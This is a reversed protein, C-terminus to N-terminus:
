DSRLAESPAVNAARRSPLLCAPLAAGVLVIATASFVMLSLPSVGFLMGSIARGVMWAGVVGIPLGICLLRIGLGLFQSLIQGPRAGLAMRVGIERTRQSVSFALIAYIGVAALLLSVAGFVSGMIVPIRRASLSDDIRSAMPRTDFLEIGPDIGLVVAKIAAAAAGPEQLTRVTVVFQTLEGAPFYAAGHAQQDSLDKQKISGVVGVITYRIPKTETADHPQSLQRGVASGSPWHRHAFEEDVDCVLLKSRVDEVNLFRGERLPIGLTAFYDGIVWNSFLGEKIFEDQAATPGAISWAEVNTRWTFPVGQSITASVTGPMARLGAALRGIVAVRKKPDKYGSWDPLAVVGTMLHEQTFGPKVDLIRIFSLGLLGTASLLVFALAIQAVILGHRLRHVSRTTTGGRSEVSLSSALNGRATLWVVPSALLLGVGASMGLAAWSVAPVLRLELAIDEPLQGAVFRSWTSLVAFGIALGLIGGALSLVLAEVLIGRILQHRGAGLVQRLSYEKARSTARVMFLNALNVVGILLLFLVGAQLLLLVSRSGKVHDAQLSTVDCFYGASLVQGAMPDVKIGAKDVAELESQAERLTVGHRLRAIMELGDYHRAYPNDDAPAITIPTWLKSGYSLYGFGAPMVGIITYPVDQIQLTQGIASAEGKFHQRWFGDSLVVVKDKGPTGEEDAFTRGLVASAELVRFFSPTVESGSVREATGGTTLICDNYRICGAEQFAAVGRKRELYHPVSVGIGIIGAKPYNNHIVVLRDSEYFPLPRILAQNVMSFIVVNAALCLAVIFLVTLTFGRSRRLSRLTFRLDGALQDVWALKREDRYSEKVQDVGGFQRLASARAEEWSMGKKMNAETAMELHIRIEDALEEEM